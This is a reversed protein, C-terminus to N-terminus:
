GLGPSLVARLVLPLSQALKGMNELKLELTLAVFM